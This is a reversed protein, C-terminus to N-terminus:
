VLFKTRNYTKKEKKRLFGGGTKSGSSTEM